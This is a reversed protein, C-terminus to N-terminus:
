AVSPPWFCKEWVTLAMWQSIDSHSIQSQSHPKVPSKCSPNAFLFLCVLSYLIGETVCSFVCVVASVQWQSRNNKFSVIKKYMCFFWMSCVTHMSCLASNIGCLGSNGERGPTRSWRTAWSIGPCYHFYTEKLEDHLTINRQDVPTHGPDLILM